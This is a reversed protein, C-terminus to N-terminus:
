KLSFRIPLIAKSAVNVGNRTAPAFSSKRVAEVASETFGHGGAEIVSVDLLTGTSDIFLKLVVKGEIGERRAWKPYVPMQRHVFKPADANGFTTEVPADKGKGGPDAGTSRGSREATKSVAPGASVLAKVPSATVAAAPPGSKASPEPARAVIPTDM